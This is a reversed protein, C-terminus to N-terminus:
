IHKIYATQRTQSNSTESIQPFESNLFKSDFRSGIKPTKLREALTQKQAYASMLNLVGALSQRRQGDLFLINRTGM